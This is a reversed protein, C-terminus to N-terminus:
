DKNNQETNNLDNTETRRNVAEPGWQTIQTSKM